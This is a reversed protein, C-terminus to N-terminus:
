AGGLGEGVVFLTFLLATPVTLGLAIINLVSRERCPWVCVVNLVAAADILVTGIAPMVVSDAAPYTDGFITTIMPLIVWSALGIVSLAIAWWGIATRPRAATIGTGRRPPPM